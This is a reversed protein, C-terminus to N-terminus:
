LPRHIVCSRLTLNLQMEICVFTTIERLAVTWHKNKDLLLQLTVHAWFENCYARM